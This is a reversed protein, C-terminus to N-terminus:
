LKTPWQDRGGPSPAGCPSPKTPNTQQKGSLAGSLRIFADRLSLGDRAEEPTQALSAYRTNTM